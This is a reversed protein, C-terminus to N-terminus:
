LNQLCADRKARTQKRHDKALVQLEILRQEDWVVFNSHELRFWDCKERSLPDLYGKIEIWTDAFPGSLVHVDVFYRRGDPMTFPIQWEFDYQYKNLWEIVAVEYSARCTLDVGTRWHTMITVKSRNRQARAFVEPDQMPNKVGRKNMNTQEAKVRVEPSSMNSPGGYKEICTDVSKQRVAPSQMPWEVGLRELNTERRKENAVPAAVKNLKSVHEVVGPIHMPNTVNEGYCAQLTAKTKERTEAKEEPTNSKRTAAVKLMVNEDCAPSPGGYRETNTAARKALSVPDNWPHEIGNHCEAYDARAILDRDTGKKLGLGYCKPDHFTYGFKTPCAREYDGRREYKIGCGDCVYLCVTRWRNILKGLRAYQREERGLFM